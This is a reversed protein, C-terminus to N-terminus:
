GINQTKVTTVCHISLNGNEGDVNKKKKKYDSKSKTIAGNLAGLAKVTFRSWQAYKYVYCLPKLFRKFGLGTNKKKKKTMQHLMQMEM